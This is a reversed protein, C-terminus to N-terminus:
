NNLHPHGNQPKECLPCILSLGMLKAQNIPKECHKCTVIFEHDVFVGANEIIENSEKTHEM